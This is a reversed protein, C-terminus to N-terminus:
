PNKVKLLDKQYARHEAVNLTRDYHLEICTSKKQRLAWQYDDKFEDVSQPHRYQIGFLEAAAAFRFDHSAAFFREHERDTVKLPLFSFIGGGFNNLIVCILPHTSRALLSLSNLDHLFAQDGTLLTVPRGLGAAFGAASAVTGDIGSAGRNAGVSFKAADRDAFMDMLRLPMSNALFLGHGSPLMRSLLRAVAPENIGKRKETQRNLRSHIAADWEAAPQFWDPSTREKLRSTMGLCFDRIRTEMRWTVKHLPDHRLPHDLVMFYHKLSHGALWEHCRKSTLRGGFQLVADCRTLWEKVPTKDRSLLLLDFYSIVEPALAGTRLGSTIDPFVPWQLRRAVDLVAAQEEPSSTKGLLIIGRKIQNLIDAAADLAAADPQKVYDGYVTYPKIALLWPKLSPPVPRPRAQESPATLPERFPCNLQVPGPYGHRSKYVAHDVTTLVFEPGVDPGPCPFDVAARCYDGFIRGQQITQHAGTKQLEVPRDATLLILPLKKKSAEIVAPFLNAVATGSTVIVAAPKRAASIYGLAFFGLGREDYHVCTEAGPNRAAALVLPASRAGPAICFRCVGLRVLEEIILDAWFQNYGNKDPRTM